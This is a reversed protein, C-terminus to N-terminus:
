YTVLFIDLDQDHRAVRRILDTTIGRRTLRAWWGKESTVGCILLSVNKEAAVRMIEPVVNDAKVRLIQGGLETALQLNNILHRQAALGVRDSSERPTQIYLVYWRAGGLRDALRSTKRIIEKAAPANANICALLRDTNRRQPAVAPAGGADSEIQRGLLNAVERLALERLQLLNEAQFFNQLATPVKQSDYIKGEELRGRLEGVTLDVNVVEDALKLLQDPVRETVDTGTIRLVQDHLSELHQVNVATIVSIGAKVLQEVDQWRKENLSGPVNTHALEDVIVVSPRRQLIAQVDMEELMRGKYFIQKRPLVPLGQLQAETGARGHTVVFGLVVDVHHQLLDHAEQLMRYTKGVGAALGIYVKLRGRRRDQVLRLFREASQDRLNDETSTEM